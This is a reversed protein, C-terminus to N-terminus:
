LQGILFLPAASLEYYAESGNSRARVLIGHCAHLLRKTRQHTPRRLKRRLWTGRMDFALVRSPFAFAHVDYVCNFIHDQPSMRFSVRSEQHRLLVHQEM